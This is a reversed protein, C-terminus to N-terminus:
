CRSTMWSFTEIVKLKNVVQAVAIDLESRPDAIYGRRKSIVSSSFNDRGQIRSAIPTIAPVPTSPGSRSTSHPRGRIPTLSRIGMSDKRPRPLTNRLSHFRSRTPTDSVSRNWMAEAATPSSAPVLNSISRGSVRSLSAAAPRRRLSIYPTALTANDTVEDGLGSTASSPGANCKQEAVAQLDTWATLIREVETTVRIDFDIPKATDRVATVADAASAVAVQIREHDHTESACLVELLRRLKADCHKVSTASAALRELVSMLKNAIVLSDKLSFYHRHAPHDPQVDITAFEEAVQELEPRVHRVTEVNPLLERSSFARINGFGASVIHEMRLSNLRAKLTEIRKTLDDNASGTLITSAKDIPSNAISAINTPGFVDNETVLERSSVAEVRAKARAVLDDLAASLRKLEDTVVKALQLGADIAESLSSPITTELRPRDDLLASQRSLCAEVSSAQSEMTSLSTNRFAVVASLADEGAHLSVRTSCVKALHLQQEGQILDVISRWRDLSSNLEATCRSYRRCWRRDELGAASARCHSIASAVRAAQLNVEERVSRNVVVLDIARIGDMASSQPISSPDPPPPLPPSSPPTLPPASASTTPPLLPTPRVLTTAPAPLTLDSVFPVRRPLSSEWVTVEEALDEIRQLIAQLSYDDSPQEDDRALGAIEETVAQIGRQLQAADEQILRVVDAQDTVRKVLDFLKQLTGFDVLLLSDLKALHLRLAPLSRGHTKLLEAFSSLPRVINTEYRSRLRDLDELDVSEVQAISEESWVATDIAADLSERLRSADLHLVKVAEFIGLVVPLIEIDQKVEVMDSSSRSILALLRDTQEDVQDILIDALDNIPLDPRISKPPARQAQRYQMAALTSRQACESSRTTLTEPAELSAQITSKWSDHDGRLEAPSSFDPRGRSITDLASQIDREFSSMEKQLDLVRNRVNVLTEYWSVGDACSNIATM